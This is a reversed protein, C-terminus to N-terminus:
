SLLRRMVGNILYQFTWIWWDSERILGYMEVFILKGGM